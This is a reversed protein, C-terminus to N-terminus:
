KKILYFKNIKDDIMYNEEDKFKAEEVQGYINKAPMFIGFSDLDSNQLVKVALISHKPFFFLVFSNADFSWSAPTM